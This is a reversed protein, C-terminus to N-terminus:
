LTFIDMNKCEANTSRKRLYVVLLIEWIIQTCIDVSANMRVENQTFNSVIFTNLWSGQSVKRLGELCHDPCYQVM